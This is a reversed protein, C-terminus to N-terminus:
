RKGSPADELDSDGEIIGFENDVSDERTPLLTLRGFLALSLGPMGFVFLGVLANLASVASRRGGALFQGTILCYALYAAYSVFVIGGAIRWCWWFRFADYLGFIMCVALLECAVVIGWGAAAPPRVLFPM